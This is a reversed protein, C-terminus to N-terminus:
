DLNRKLWEALLQQEGVQLAATRVGVICQPPRGEEFLNSHLCDAEKSLHSSYVDRSYKLPNFDPCREM